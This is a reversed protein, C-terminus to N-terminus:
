FIACALHTVSGNTNRSIQEALRQNTVKTIHVVCVEDEIADDPKDSKASELKAPPRRNRTPKVM